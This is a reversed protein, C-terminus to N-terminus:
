LGRRLPGVVGPAKQAAERALLRTSSSARLTAARERWPGERSRGRPQARCRPPLRRANASRLCSQGRRGLALCSRERAPEQPRAPAGPVGGGGVGPCPTGRHCRVEPARPGGSCVMDCGCVRGGKGRCWRGPYLDGMVDPSGLGGGVPEGQSM